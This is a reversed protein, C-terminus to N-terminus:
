RQGAEVTIGRYFTPEVRLPRAILGQQQYFDATAQQQAVTQPDIAQWHAKRRSFSLKVAQQPFGIIHALTASYGDINNYALQEAHALLNVYQQLAQRKEANGLASDTAALFSNGAILGQGNVLVRGIGSTEALATYPDWTAWADIAGSALAIKADGPTLYRFRVDEAKIGAQALAKLAVFHGISGRGTGISKGKLDAASHLTSDKNVVIATGIPDSKDVAIAKVQSGAAISFLLPADGIIGADVAGANLAEALPAAAPFEAWEIHFPLNKLLGSAELQARMNGKQDAIRLTTVGDAYVSGSVALALLVILNKM